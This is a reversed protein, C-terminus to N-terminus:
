MQGILMLTKHDWGGLTWTLLINSMRSTKIHIDSILVNCLSSTLYIRVACTLFYYSFSFYTGLQNRFWGARVCFFLCASSSHRLYKIVITRIRPHPMWTSSYNYFLQNNRTQVGKHEFPAINDVDVHKKTNAFTQTYVIM